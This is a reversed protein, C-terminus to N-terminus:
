LWKNNKLWSDNFDMSQTNVNQPEEQQQEEEQMLHISRVNLIDAAALAYVETDLYHNDAHSTKPVWVQNIRGGSTKVNVKHEATVQEAYERDCGEYVMWSGNGNPKRMRSAIMDKYKGGDVLLLRMGHAKSTAKNITSIKFHSYGSATGKAPIAWESNKACFDYVADTQDGSDVACLNVMFAEGNRKKYESNMAMEIENFSLAQGHAINQSTLYPGWARITWYLSSEQVDVGGTLMVAWDPVEFQKYSTQRELVMDANTKLKTDEWPEALWSNVFNQFEEPDDKTTLFEKAIEGFRVFPSYLTNMWYAVKRPYQTRQKFVEWRGYRLMQPKHQDTIICGCEQCVYTALEAREAYSMGEKKPWKIQELKLEIYEGCHPCPVKYHKEIDASEKAKWIHGTKLTPTSTMFIKRNNSFTKTREKALKIPDAEKKSAGPYKDVEDLLLFRVPKSALSSPSNAGSLTLYLGEFQLELKSSQFPKFKTRLERSNMLMPQLRNESISEALKDSPYVIMTPSPDQMVIYGVMNQLAETGGVQTPKVFIIEETEANNFENMIDVLYPTVSNKWKGPIASSKNDLIRYKESWESVALDEPPRLQRLPNKIYDPLNSQKRRPM